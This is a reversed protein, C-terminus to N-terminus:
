RPRHARWGILRVLVAVAAPQALATLMAIEEFPTGAPIDLSVLLRYILTLLQENRTLAEHLDDSMSDLAERAPSTDEPGLEDDRAVREILNSM